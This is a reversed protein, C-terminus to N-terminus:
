RFDSIIIRIILILANDQTQNEPMLVAGYSAFHYANELWLITRYHVKVFYIMFAANHFHYVINLVFDNSFSGKCLIHHFWLIPLNHVKKVVFPELM